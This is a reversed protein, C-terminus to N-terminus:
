FIVCNETPLLSPPTSETSHTVPVFLFLCPNARNLSRSCVALRHLSFSGSFAEMGPQLAHATMSPKLCAHVCSYRYFNTGALHWPKHRYDKAVWSASILLIATWLWSWAFLKFFVM